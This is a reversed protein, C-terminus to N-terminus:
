LFIRAGLEAAVLALPVLPRVFAIERRAFHLNETIEDLLCPLIVRTLWMWFNPEAAGCQATGKSNSGQNPLVPRVCCLESAVSRFPVPVM